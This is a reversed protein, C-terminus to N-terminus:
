GITKRFRLTAISLISGGIILLALCEPWLIAPGIGKLFVGRTITLFHRLPNLLTLYQFVVPMSGVPFMFGSLLIVPQLVLFSVMSAEQQTRSLTSILLGAGLASALYLIGAGLLFTFNGKFPVHFLAMAAVTVMILDLIGVMAFPITKGAILEGPRLPSVLLQELTGIERERVVAQSTLIMCIIMLLVAVVGPVNYDRSSLNPNYWARERLDIATRHSGPEIRRAYNRIIQEAYGRATMATNSNTGDLLLQVSAGDGDALARDFGAPIVLGVIADGRELARVMDVPRDSRAIVKFYGSVTLAEVLERSTRSRDHDLVFTPTMRIDTSVAYGFIILQIVPPLILMRVMRPDRLLQKFEKIVLERIRGINDRSIM